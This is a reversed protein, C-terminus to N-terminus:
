TLSHEEKVKERDVHGDKGKPLTKLFIVYKPKKYRAIGEAVFDILAQPELTSGEKIVCVAKIAEGWQKDPVGFVCAEVIDPHELLAKEM